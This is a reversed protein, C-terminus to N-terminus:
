ASTVEGYARSIAKVNGKLVSASFKKGFSQKFTDILKDKNLAGTAKVLAGIMPTNPIVRGLEDLSIKNADIVYVKQSVGLKKKIDAASKDSNVLVIGNDKIGATVDVADLLTSDLVLVVDPNTIQSHIKIECDDLRTFAQIPAGTRESGYEPFAQVYKGEAFASMALLKSATVAGQGGRAHWRVEIPNSM